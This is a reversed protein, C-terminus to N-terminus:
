LRHIRPEGLGPSGSAKQLRGCIEDLQDLDAYGIRVSGGEGDVQIEVPMKLADSLLREM